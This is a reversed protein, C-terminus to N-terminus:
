VLNELTLRQFWAGARRTGRTEGQVVKKLVRSVASLYQPHPLYPPLGQSQRYGASSGAVPVEKRQRAAPM